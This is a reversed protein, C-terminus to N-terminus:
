LMGLAAIERSLLQTTRGLHVAHYRAVREWMHQHGLTHTKLALHVFRYTHVRRPLPALLCMGVLEGCGVIIEFCSRLCPYARRTEYLGHMFVFGLLTLKICGYMSHLSPVPTCNGAEPKSGVSATGTAQELRGRRACWRGLMGM